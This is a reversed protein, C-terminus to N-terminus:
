SMELCLHLAYLKVLENRFALKRIHVKKIYSQSWGMQIEYTLSWCKGHAKQWIRLAIPQAPAGRTLSASMCWPTHTVCAGHHMGPDSVLPKMQVRHRSLTGPMGPAHVFWLKAYRTLSGHLFPSNVHQLGVWWGWGRGRFFTSWLSQQHCPYNNLM